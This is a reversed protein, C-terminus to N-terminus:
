KCIGVQMCNPAPLSNPTLINCSNSVFHVLQTKKHEEEKEKGTLLM